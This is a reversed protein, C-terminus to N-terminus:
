LDKNIIEEHISDIKEDILIHLKKTNNKLQKLFDFDEYDFYENEFLELTTNNLDQLDEIVNYFITNSEELLQLNKM